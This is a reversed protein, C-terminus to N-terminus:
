ASKRERRDAHTWAHALLREPDTNRVEGARRDPESNNRRDNMPHAMVHAFLRESDDDAQGCTPCVWRTPVIVRARNPDLGKM